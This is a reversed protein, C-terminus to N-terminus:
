EDKEGKLRAKLRKHLINPVQSFEAHEFEFHSGRVADIIDFQFSNTGEPYVRAGNNLLESAPVNVNFIHTESM